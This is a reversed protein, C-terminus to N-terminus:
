RLSLRSEDLLEPEPLVDALLPSDEEDDDDDSEDFPELEEDVEELEVFEPDLPDDDLLEEDPLEVV